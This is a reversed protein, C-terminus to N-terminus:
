ETYPIVIYDVCISATREVQTNYAYITFGNATKDLASYEVFSFHKGANVNTIVVGYKENQMPEKFNVIVSRSANAAIPGVEIQGSKMKGTMKINNLQEDMKKNIYEDLQELTLTVKADGAISIQSYLKELDSLEKEEAKTYINKANIAM